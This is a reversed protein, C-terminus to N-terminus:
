RHWIWTTLLTHFLKLLLGIVVSTAATTYSAGNGHQLMLMKGLLCSKNMTEDNTLYEDSDQTSKQVDSWTSMALSTVRTGSCPSCANELLLNLRSNKRQQLFPIIIIWAVPKENGPQLLAGL